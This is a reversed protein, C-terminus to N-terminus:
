RLVKGEPDVVVPLWACRCNPHVPIIGEAQDIPLPDGSAGYKADLAECQPCVKDDEATAFESLVMVGEIRAERYSNLSATAHAAITETRALARARTIGIKDVRDVVARALARAGLGEVMGQALVESIQADMTDTIGQLKRYNRTYILGARDAHVPRMFAGQLWSDEVQVGQKRLNSGASAMGKQYASQLYVNQWSKNAASRISTGPSTELIGDREAEDLWDMFSGVKADKRDFAFERKRPRRAFTKLAPLQAADTPLLGFVDDVVIAQIIARRLEKFRRVMAREYQRRLTTTRTPDVRNVHVHFSCNHPHITM